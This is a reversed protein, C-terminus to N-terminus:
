RTSFSKAADALRKYLAKEEDTLALIPPNAPDLGPVLLQWPAMEFADALGKLSELKVQRGNRARNVTRQSLKGSKAIKAESSLSPYHSMLRALNEALVKEPSKPTRQM